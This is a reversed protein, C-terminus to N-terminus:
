PKLYKDYFRIPKYQLSYYLDQWYKEGEPTRDWQFWSMLAFRINTSGTLYLMHSGRQKIVNAVAQEKYPSPLTQLVELYTM